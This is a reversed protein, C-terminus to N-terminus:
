KIRTEDSCTIAKKGYINRKPTPLTAFSEEINPIIMDFIEDGIVTSLSYGRRQQQTVLM